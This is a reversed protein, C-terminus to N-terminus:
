GPYIHSAKVITHYATAFRVAKEQPVFVYNTYTDSIHGCAEITQARNVGWIAYDLEHLLTECTTRSHVRFAHSPHAPSHTRLVECMVFPRQRQLIDRAGSLVAAEYGEVDIKILAIDPLCLAALFKGADRIMVTQRLLAHENGRFNDIVTAKPDAHNAYFLTTIKEECGLGIPFISCDQFNNSYILASIYGACHINPEFGVYVVDSFLSKVKLLTQGVNAGIDIFTGQSVAYCGKIIEDMWLSKNRRIIRSDFGRQLPIRVTTNHMQITTHRPICRWFAQLIERKGDIGLREKLFRNLPSWM